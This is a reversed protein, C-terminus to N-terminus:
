DLRRIAFGSVKLRIVQENNKMVYDDDISFNIIANAGWETALSYLSDIVESLNIRGIVKKYSTSMYSKKKKIEMGPTQEVSLLGIAEYENNYSEPTFLFGKETYSRFDIAYTLTDKSFENSRCGIILISFLHIAIINKVQFMKSRM